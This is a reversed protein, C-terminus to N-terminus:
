DNNAPEDMAPKVIGLFDERLKRITSADLGAEKAAAVVAGEAVDAFNDKKRVEGHINLTRAQELNKLTAAAEKLMKMSASDDSLQQEMIVDYVLCKITENLLLGVDGDSQKNLKEAMISAIERVQLLRTGTVAIHLANRHFASRSVPPAGISLLHNNLEDRIDDQTRRREGLADMADRVYPVAEDPLLDISSLRGRKGDAM